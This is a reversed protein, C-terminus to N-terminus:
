CLKSGCVVVCNVWRWWKVRVVVVSTEHSCGAGCCLQGQGSGGSCGSWLWSATKLKVVSPALDLM